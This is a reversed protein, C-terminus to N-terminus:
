KKVGAQPENPVSVWGDKDPLGVEADTLWKRCSVLPGVGKNTIQAWCLVVEGTWNDLRFVTVHNGTGMISYHQTLAISAAVLAGAVVIASAILRM